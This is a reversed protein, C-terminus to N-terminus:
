IIEIEIDPMGSTKAILTKYKGFAKDANADRWVFCGFNYKSVYRHLACYNGYCLLIITNVIHQPMKSGAIYYLKGFIRLCLRTFFSLNKYFAQMVYIPYTSGLNQKPGEQRTKRYLTNAEAKEQLIRQDSIASCDLTVSLIVGQQEGRKFASSRESYAFTEKTITRIEGDPCLVKAEILLNSISCQFCGANNVAASAVTGPLNVFGEYGAHGNEIAQRSLSTMAVGCECIYQGNGEQINNLHITSIVIDLNTTNRIYLNSTHGVIKFAAKEQYLRSVLRILQNMNDPIVYLGAIGGRHIWTKKKLDVNEEFPIQETQLFSKWDM